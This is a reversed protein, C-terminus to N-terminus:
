AVDGWSGPGLARPRSTLDLTGCGRGREVFTLARYHDDLEVLAHPPRSAWAALHRNLSDRWALVEVAWGQGGLRKAAAFMGDGRAWGQGDGTVLVLLGPEDLDLLRTMRAQLVLDTLQQEANSDRGPERLDIEADPAFGRIM